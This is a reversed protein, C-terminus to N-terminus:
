DPERHTSSGWPALVRLIPTLLKRTWTIWKADAGDLPNDLGTAVRRLIRSGGTLLGLSPRLALVSAAQRTVGPWQEQATLLAGLRIAATIAARNAPLHQRLLEVLPRAIENEADAIGLKVTFARTFDDVAEEYRGAYLRVTGRGSFPWPWLQNEALVRDFDREAEALRGAEWLLWGRTVYTAKIVLGSTLQERTQSDGPVVSPHHGRTEIDGPYKGSWCRSHEQHFARTM